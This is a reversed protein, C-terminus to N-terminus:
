LKAQILKWYEITMPGSGNWNKAAMEYTKGQAFYLFVKRSIEYDYCDNLTYNMGTLQNYHAIRCPRIQFAGTAQEPAYYAFTDGKSEVAVIAKILPEYYNIAEPKEIYVVMVSPAFVPVCIMLIVFTLIM